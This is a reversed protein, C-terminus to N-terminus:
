SARRAAARRELRERDVDIACALADCDNRLWSRLSTREDATLEPDIWDGSEPCVEYDDALEPNEPDTADVTAWYVRGDLELEVLYRGVEDADDTSLAKANRFDRSGEARSGSTKRIDPCTM